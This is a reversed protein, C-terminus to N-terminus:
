KTRNTAAEEEQTSFGGWGSFEDALGVAAKIFFLYEDGWTEGAVKMARLAKVFHADHNWKGELAEKEVWDWSRGKLDVTHVKAPDIKPVGQAMYVQVVLLWWQRILPIHHKKDLLPLVIRLAHSSTLLHVLFFDFKEGPNHSGILTAVAGRQAYEFQSPLNHVTLANWYELMLAEKDKDSPISDVNEEGGNSSPYSLSSFRSDQSMHQLVELPSDSTWPAPRTYSPDEIYKHLPSYFSSVHSLAEIALTQSHLEYAYGM